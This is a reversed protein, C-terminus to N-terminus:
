RSTSTDACIVSRPASSKWTMRMTGTRWTNVGFAFLQGRGIRFTGFKADTSVGNSDLDHPLGFTGFLRRVEEADAFGRGDDTITFGEAATRIDISTAGADVSNMVGELVSKGVTGAQRRISVLILRPHTTFAHQEAKGAEDDLKSLNIPTNSM